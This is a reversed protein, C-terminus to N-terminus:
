NEMDFGNISGTIVQWHGHLHLEPKQYTQQPATLQPEPTLSSPNRDQM